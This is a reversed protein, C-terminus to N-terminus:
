RETQANVAVVPLGVHQLLGVFRPDSHLPTFAPDVAMTISAPDHRGVMSSLVDMARDPEQAYMDWEAQEMTKDHYNHGSKTNLGALRVKSYATSGSKAFAQQGAKELAIRDPDNALHAMRQWEAIAESYRKAYWLAWAQQDAAIPWQPTLEVMKRAATLMLANKGANAAVFAAAQYVPPWFPDDREALKIQQLSESAKGEISLLTALWIHYGAEGSDLDVALRLEREATVSDWDQSQSVCGLIAHAQASSQDLSLAKNALHKAMDFGNPIEGRDAFILYVNAMGAFSGAFKPDLEAARQFLAMARNLSNDTRAQLYHRGDLYAEYAEPNATRRQVRLLAGPKGGLTTYVAYQVRDRLTHLQRIDGAFSLAAIHSNDNARVVEVHLLCEQGHVELRGLLIADLDATSALAMMSANDRPASTFSHAARVELGPVQGLSDSLDYRLNEAVAKADDNNTEFPVMAVRVPNTVSATVEHYWRHRVYFATTLVLICLITGLSTYKWYNSPINRTQVLSPPKDDGREPRAQDPVTEGLVGAPGVSSAPTAIGSLDAKAPESAVQFTLTTVAVAPETRVEACFRYGHRPVTEIFRSSRSDDGLAKRIQSIAKNIAHEYDFFAVDSWLQQRLQERTVLRGPPTLLIALVRASQEQLPFKNGKRRFELSELDLSYISFTVIRSTKKVDLSGESWDEM